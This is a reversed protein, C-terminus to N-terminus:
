PVRAIPRTLFDITRHWAAQLAPEAFRIELELTRGPVGEWSVHGGSAHVPVNSGAFRMGDPLQVDVRLRTPRITPQNLFTLRYVGATRSGTWARAVNLRYSLTTSARSAVHVYDQMTTFGLEEGIQQPETRGDRTAAELACSSACYITTYSVHEGRESVDGHPGLVYVSAGELPADNRLELEATALGTGEAGLQISYSIRRSVYYDVKNAAANNQIVGFADGAPAVFRGAVGAEAFARETPADDAYVSLHGDGVARGLATAAEVPSGTGAMFREFVAAAASGLATKRRDQDGFASYAENATFPVVSDATLTRDLEPVEVPGTASILARLVYPDATVVGDVREGTAREYLREIAVAATPFDPTMNVNPWFGAGGFRDYTRAYEASPPEIRRAPFSRLTETPAFRSFRMSGRDVTLIAYAGLFGGSGRLESPSVAGFFYRRPGDAGLFSPLERLIGAGSRLAHELGSVQALAQTRASAVPGLLMSSSSSSLLDVASAVRDAAAACADALGGLRRADFRGDRPALAEVGGPIESLATAVEEGGEATLRGADALAVAADPTRGLVPVWGLVRLAPSHAQARARIFSGEAARFAEAAGAADGRLLAARGREMSERAALFRERAGAASPYALALVVGLAVVALAAFPLARRM